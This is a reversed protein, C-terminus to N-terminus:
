DVRNWIDLYMKWVGPSTERWVIVYKGKWNSEKGDSGISKGEYVGWDYAESGIIKIESPTVKHFTIKPSAAWVQRIAARGEVVNKGPPFIRADPTYADAVADWDATKLLESFLEAAARIDKEADGIASKGSHKKLFDLAANWAADTGTPNREPDLVLSGHQESEAVVFPIGFKQFLAAQEQRNPASMESKARFVLLPTKLKSLRAENPECPAISGGQAPAFALVAGVSEPKRAALDIVLAGSFGSGWLIKKGTFNQNELFQLAAEVDAVSLCYADPSANKWNKATRNQGGHKDGGERLDVALLNFGAARLRPILNKYEALANSQAQHFLLITPANKRDASEPAAFFLNAFVEVGDAAKFVVEEGQTTTPKSKEFDAATLIDTPWGAEFNEPGISGNEDSDYDVAIKWHGDIKRHFVHFQGFFQQRSGDKSTSTVRYIGRESAMDPRTAREFFTFDITTQRQDAQNRTFNKRSSAGYEALNRVGAWQGGNGRIFDPTHLGLYKKADNTAYAESFPQWIDRNIEKLRAINEADGPINVEPFRHRFHHHDANTQANALSALSALLLLFYKKM